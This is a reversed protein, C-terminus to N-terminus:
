GQVRQSVATGDTLVVRVICIGPAGALVTEAPLRHHMATLRGSSDYIEVRVVPQTLVIGGPIRRVINAPASVSPVAIASPVERAVTIASLHVNESGNRATYVWRIYRTDASLTKTQTTAEPKADYTALETWAAGDASEEVLFSGGFPDPIGIDYTVSSPRESFAAVFVVSQYGFRARGANNELGGPVWGTVATTWSTVLTASLDIVLPLAAPKAKRITLKWTSQEGGANGKITATQERGDEWVARDAVPIEGSAYSVTDELETRIHVDSLDFGPPVIFQIEQAGATRNSQALAGDLTISKFYIRAEATNAAIFALLLIFIKKM